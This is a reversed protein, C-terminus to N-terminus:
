LETRLSSGRVYPAGGNAAIILSPGSAVIEEVGIEPLCSLCSTLSRWPATQHNDCRPRLAGAALALEMGTETM